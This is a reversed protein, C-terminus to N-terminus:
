PNRKQELQPSGILVSYFVTKQFLVGERPSFDNLISNLINMYQRITPASNVVPIAYFGDKIQRLATVILGKNFIPYALLASQPAGPVDLLPRNCTADLEDLVSPFNQFLYFLPAVAPDVM